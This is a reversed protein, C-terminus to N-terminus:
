GPRASQQWRSSNFADRNVFWLWGWSPDGGGSALWEAVIAYAIESKTKGYQTQERWLLPGDDAYKVPIGGANLLRLICLRVFESLDQGTFGFSRGAPVIGFMAKGDNGLESSVGELYDAATVGSPRRRQLDIM